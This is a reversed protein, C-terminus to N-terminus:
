RRSTAPIEFDLGRARNAQETAPVDVEDLPIQEYHHQDLDTLTRSTVMYNQMTAATRGSKFIVTLPQEPLAPSAEAGAYAPRPSQVEPGAGQLYNPGQMPEPGPDYGPNAALDAYGPAGDAGSGSDGSDGWNYFGADVV